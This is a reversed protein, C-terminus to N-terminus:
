SLPALLASHGRKLEGNPIDILPVCVPSAGLPRREAASRENQCRQLSKEKLLYFRSFIKSNRTWLCNLAAWMSQFCVASVIPTPPCRRTCSVAFCESGCNQDPAEEYWHCVSPTWVRLVHVHFVGLPSIAFHYDDSRHHCNNRECWDCPSTSLTFFYVSEPSSLEGILWAHLTDFREWYSQLYSICLYCVTYSYVSASLPFLQVTETERARCVTNEPVDRSYKKHCDCM